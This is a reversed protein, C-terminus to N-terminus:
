FRIGFTIPLYQGNVKEPGTSNPVATPQTEPGWVYHYRMEFFIEAEDAFQFAVGGGFNVGFDWGGRDGVVADIPYTGCLYLWPDCM